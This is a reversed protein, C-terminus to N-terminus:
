AESSESGGEWQMIRIIVYEAPKVLAVGIEVILRGNDILGRRSIKGPSRRIALGLDPVYLHITKFEGV